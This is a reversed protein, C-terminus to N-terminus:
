QNKSNNDRLFICLNSFLVIKFRGWISESLTTCYQNIDPMQSPCISSSFCTYHLFQFFVIEGSYSIGRSFRKDSKLSIEYSIKM